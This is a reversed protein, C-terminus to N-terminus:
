RDVGKTGERTAIRRASHRASHRPWKKPRVVVEFPGSVCPVMLGQSAPHCSTPDTRASIPKKEGRSRPRLPVHANCVTFVYLRIMVHECASLM